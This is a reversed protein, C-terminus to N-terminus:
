NHIENYEDDHVHTANRLPEADAEASATGGDKYLEGEMEICLIALVPQHFERSHFVIRAVDDITQAKVSQNFM